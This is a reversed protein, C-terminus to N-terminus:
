LAQSCFCVVGRRDAAPTPGQTATHRGPRPTHRHDTHTQASRDGAQTRGDTRTQTDAGRQGPQSDGLLHTDTVGLALQEGRCMAEESLGHPQALRHTQTRTVAHIDPQRGPRMLPVKPNTMTESSGSEIPPALQPRITCDLPSTEAKGRSSATSPEECASRPNPPQPPRGSGWGM